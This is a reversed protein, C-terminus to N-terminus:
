MKNKSCPREKSERNYEFDAIVNKTENPEQKVIVSEQVETESHRSTIHGIYGKRSKFFVNCYECQFLPTPSANSVHVKYKHRYWHTRSQLIGGCIKCLVSGDHQIMYELLEQKNKPELNIQM